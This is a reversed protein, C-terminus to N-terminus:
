SCKPPKRCRFQRPSPDYATASLALIRVEGPRFAHESHNRLDSGLVGAQLISLNDSDPSIIIVDNDAYQTETISLMQRVRILVDNASENPTGDTGHPPRWESSTADGSMAQREADQLAMGDLAGMGRADLFSFEPVIRSYSLGLIAATVEATQYCRQTISPWLWCPTDGCVNMEELKPLVRSLVQQKGKRSLGSTMSTKQVSNTLMLGETEAESEGARVLIYRNRLHTTPFQVLAAQSPEPAAAKSSELAVTLLSLDVLFGRRSQKPQKYPSPLSPKFSQHALTEQHLCPSERCCCRPAEAKTPCCASASLRQQKAPTSHRFIDCGCHGARGASSAAM